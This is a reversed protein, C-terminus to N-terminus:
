MQERHKQHFLFDQIWSELVLDLMNMVYSSFSGQLQYHYNLKICKNCLSWYTYDTLYYIVFYSYSLNYKFRQQVSDRTDM